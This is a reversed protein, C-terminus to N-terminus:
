QYKVFTEKILKGTKKNIEWIYKNKNITNTDTIWLKGNELSGNTITFRGRTLPIPEGDKTLMLWENTSNESKLKAIIRENHNYAITLEDNELIIDYRQLEAEDFTSLDAIGESDLKIICKRDHRNIPKTTLKSSPTETLLWKFANKGSLKTFPWDDSPFQGSYGNATEITSRSQAHMAVIHARFPPQESSWEYWFVDCQSNELARNIAELEKRWEKFDFQHQAGSVAWISIFSATMVATECATNWINKLTLKWSEAALAICPASFLVIMMAVRSSARLSGSGPLLKMMTTWSTEGDFSLTMLVMLAIALAWNQVSNNKQKKFLTLIAAALLFLLGWGPFIAQEQGSIWGPDITQYNWAPPILLWDNGLLWGAPKPLNDIILEIPRRGFSKLTKLYPVYIYLNLGILIALSALKLSFNKGVKIKLNRDFIRKIIHIFACTIAGYLAYAFTYINFFGNILLLSALTTWDGASYDHTKGNILKNCECLLPGIFFLSLLQPHGLQAAIAPSFTTTLTAIDLWIKKTKPSIKIIARRISIYNLFLTACIWCVYSEIPNFISRFLGYIISQGLLHDSWTLTDEYPWFFGPSWFKSPNLISLSTFHKYAHELIYANLLTDGPDSQLTEINSSLTPWLLM